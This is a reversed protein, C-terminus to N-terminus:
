EKRKSAEIRYRVKVCDHRNGNCVPNKCRLLNCQAVGGIVDFYPCHTPENNAWKEPNHRPKGKAMGM